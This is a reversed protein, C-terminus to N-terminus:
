GVTGVVEVQSGGVRSVGFVRDFAALEHHSVELFPQVLEFLVIFFLLLAVNAGFSQSKM